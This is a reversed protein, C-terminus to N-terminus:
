DTFDGILACACDYVVDRGCSPCLEIEDDMLGCLDGM